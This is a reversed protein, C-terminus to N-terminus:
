EESVGFKENIFDAIEVFHQKVKNAIILDITPTLQHLLGMVDESAIELQVERNYKKIINLIEKELPSLNDKDTKAKAM